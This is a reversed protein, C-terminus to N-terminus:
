GNAKLSIEMLTGSNAKDVPKTSNGNVSMNPVMKGNNLEMAM